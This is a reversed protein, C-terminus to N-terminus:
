DLKAPKEVPLLTEALTRRLHQPSWKRDAMFGDEGAHHVRLSAGLHGNRTGRETKKM